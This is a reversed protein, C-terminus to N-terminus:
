GNESVGLHIQSLITIVCVTRATLDLGPREPVCAEISFLTKTMRLKATVYNAFLILVRMDFWILKMEIGEVDGVWNSTRSEGNLKGPLKQRRQFSWLICWAEVFAAPSIGALGPEMRLHSWDDWGLITFEQTMGAWKGFMCIMNEYFYYLLIYRNEMMHAFDDQACCASKCFLLRSKSWEWCAIFCGISKCMSTSLSLIGPFGQSIKPECYWPFRTLM